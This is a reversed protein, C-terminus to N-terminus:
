CAGGAMATIGEVMRRDIVVRAAEDCIVFLRVRARTMAVYLLSDTEADNASGVGVVIVVPRELGKFSHITSYAIDGPGAFAIDKVHWGGISGINALLCNERRRPGLIVADAARYGATRLSAVIQGLRGLAAADDGTFFVEVPDGEPQRESIKTGTFGCMLDAQTAIRKTNRCNVNLSFVPAGHMATCLDHHGRLPGGYLAQRTFDGFLILRPDAVGETWAKAVDALRAVDFDQAEDILVVDFREGIEDIALAGLEFYLRGYLDDNDTADPAPLDGVLSSLAIRERLLGHIHGAVVTGPGLHETWTRLFVGLQRNFCAFLVRKGIM